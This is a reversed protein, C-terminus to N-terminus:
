KLVHHIIEQMEHYQDTDRKEFLEKLSHIEVDNPKRTLLYDTSMQLASALEQQSMDRQKRYYSIKIGINRRFKAYDYNVDVLEYKM